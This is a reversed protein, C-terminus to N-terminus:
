LLLLFLFFLLAFSVLQPGVAKSEDVISGGTALTVVDQIFNTNSILAVHEVGVMEKYHISKGNTNDWKKPAELSTTPVTGDGDVDGATMSEKAACGWWEAATSTYSVNRLTDQGTGYYVYLEVKPATFEASIANLIYEAPDLMVGDWTLRFGETMNNVNIQVGRAGVTALPYDAPYVAANPLMWYIGAFYMLTSHLLEGISDFFSGFSGALSSLISYGCSVLSHFAAPAGAFAGSASVWAKIHKDKWAQDIDACNALFHRLIASGESHSVLIVAENSNTNYMKEILAKLKQFLGGAKMVSAYSEIRFDYPAGFLNVKDVYGAAKLAEILNHFYPFMTNTSDVRDVGVISEWSNPEVEFKSSFDHTNPNYNVELEAGYNQVNQIFKGPDM